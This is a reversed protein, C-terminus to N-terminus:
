NSYFRSVRASLTLNLGILGDKITSRANDYQIEVNSVDVPEDQNM